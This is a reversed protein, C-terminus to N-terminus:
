CCCVGTHKLSIFVSAVLHVQLSPPCASRVACLADTTHPAVIYWVAGAECMNSVVGAPQHLCTHQCFDALISTPCEFVTAASPGPQAKLPPCCSM